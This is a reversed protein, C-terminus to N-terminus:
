VFETALEGVFGEKSGLKTGRPDIKFNVLTRLCSFGASRLVPHDENRVTSKKDHRNFLNLHGESRTNM